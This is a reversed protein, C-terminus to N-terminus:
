NTKKIAQNFAFIADAVKPKQESMQVKEEIVEEDIEEAKMEAIMKYLEDFKADVEEKTYTAIPADEALEEKVEEKVEEDKIEDEAMEEKKVEDEKVEDKKPDEALAEEKVKETIVGNEDVIYTKGGMEFEGAPLKMEFKQEDMKQEKELKKNIIESLSLGMFGEISFGLQENAVLDDYTEKDNIQAVMMVSGKPVKIGYTSFSKDKTPDDVIWTELVYANVKDENNHELNFVQRNTFNKMFKSHMREIESETFQVYYEEYEDCRYIDMPIMIPAVIRNKLKDGFFQKEKEVDSSFSMGKTKIAPNATFAIASIGLDEGDSFEDDISIKYTPLKM